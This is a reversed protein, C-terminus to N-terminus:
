ENMMDDTWQTQTLPILIYINGMAFCFTIDDLFLDCIICLSEMNNIVIQFAVYVTHM